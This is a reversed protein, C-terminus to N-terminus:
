APGLLLAARLLVVTTWHGLIFAAALTAFLIWWARVRLRFTELIAADIGSEPPTELAQRDGV